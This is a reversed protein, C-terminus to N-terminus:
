RGAVGHPPAEPEVAVAPEQKAALLPRAREIIAACPVGQPLAGFLGSAGSSLRGRCFAEAVAANGGRLLVSAQLGLALSQMLQRGEYISRPADSQQRASMLLTGLHRRHRDYLDNMGAAANLEEIVADLGDPQRQIARFLDLCQINGSGEWIANIPAERYLRSLISTEIAGSGGLCEMAEYAHAPARKCVWYKGIPTLLRFLAAESDDALHDLARATRFSLALAAESEIALDALVNQMLPHQDLRKGFTQRYGAHHTVQAVAQRMGAASAVMCDFRTLAVMELINAVGRGEDGVLWAHADRLEAEASANSVNGMKRKLQQLEIANKTGDPLWRPLLFCSLGGPAQALVLFADSMPASVFYKHGRLVYCDGPESSALPTAQTTNARVDSGGQKETMAMGITVAPKGTVPVNRPDYERATVLPEWLAALNPQKRLTPIAAFTMTLPCGHGAEVQTQLYNFAARAVHSGARQETWPRSHLGHRIAGGLLEHYAPHYEVLDVRRGKADHTSLRPRHENAQFGLRIFESRGTLGGYVTLEDTAWGAGERSLTERLANDSLFANYNELGPSQNLESYTTQITDM